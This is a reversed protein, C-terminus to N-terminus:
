SPRASDEILQSLRSAEKFADHRELVAQRGAAGLANAQNAPAHLATMMMEALANADGPPVLWGTKEHEVLEPIGAIWTSVVPRGLAFAEMIVVPLGEAFSAVVLIRARRLADLIETNDAWGRLKVCHGLQYKAIADEIQPRMEGDGIIEIQFKCGRGVMLAAADILVRQGKQECIRGINLIRPEHPVDSKPAELLVEDLGCRVIKVKEWDDTRIWRFVQSRAFSSITAVFKANGVKLDLSLREARDFDEPGHIMFSYPPGGLASALMAVEASNTAFHAHLHDTSDKRLWESLVCAEALYAMHRFVSRDSRAVLKWSLRMASLLRGPRKLAVVLFTLLLGTLGVATAYRTARAEHIDKDDVLQERWPRLAFRRVEHGMAELAAIERRIFTLSAMPYQNVLYAIRM